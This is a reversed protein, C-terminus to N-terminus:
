YDEQNDPIEIKIAPQDAMTDPTAALIVTKAEESVAPNNMMPQVPAAIQQIPAVPTAAAPIAAKEVQEDDVIVAYTEVTPDTKGSAWCKESCAHSVLKTRLFGPDPYGTNKFNWNGGNAQKSKSRWAEWDNRRYIFFRDAGEDNLVMRVYGVIPIDTEYRELHKIVRGNEVVFEDGQYVIKAQDVSKVQQSETLRRVKLPTQPWLSAKGNMPVLYCENATPNFDVGLVAATVFCAYLSFKSANQLDQSAMILQKFHLLNAHYMMEGNKITHTANYNEIYKKQVFDLEAIAGPTTQELRAQLGNVTAQQVVPQTEM